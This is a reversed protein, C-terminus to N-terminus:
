RDTVLNKLRQALVDAEGEIEVVKRRSSAGGVLRLSRIGIGCSKALLKLTAANAKGGEPPAAVKLAIRARGGDDIEVGQLAAKSARPRVKVAVRVGDPRVTLWGDAPETM